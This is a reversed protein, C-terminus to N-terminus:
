HSQLESTHEESRVRTKGVHYDFSNHMHGHTWLVIKEKDLIFNELDSVYCGNIYKDAKYREHISQYSPAHHGCVVIKDYNNEITNYTDRIFDLAKFIESFTNQGDAQLFADDGEVDRDWGLAHPIQKLMILLGIGTLMGKIVSNPFFYAIFGAKPMNPINFELQKAKNKFKCSETFDEM